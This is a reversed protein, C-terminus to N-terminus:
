IFVRQISLPGQLFNGGHGSSMPNFGAAVGHSPGEARLVVQIGTALIAERPTAATKLGGNALIFRGVPDVMTWFLALKRIVLRPSTKPDAGPAGTRGSLSRMEADSTM